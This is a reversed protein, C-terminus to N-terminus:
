RLDAAKAVFVMEPRSPRFVDADDPVTVFGGGGLSLVMLPATQWVLGVLRNEGKEDAWKAVVQRNGEAQKQPLEKM